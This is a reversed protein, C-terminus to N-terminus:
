FRGAPSSGAQEPSRSQRKRRADRFEDIRYSKACSRRASFEDGHETQCEATMGVALTSRCHFWESDHHMIVIRCIAAFKRTQSRWSTVYPKMPPKVDSRRGTHCASAFVRAM